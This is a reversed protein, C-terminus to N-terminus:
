SPLIQLNFGLNPERTRFHYYGDSDTRNSLPTWSKTIGHFAAYWAERGMVLERLKSLSMEMVNTVGHLWRM